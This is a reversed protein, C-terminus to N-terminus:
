AAKRRMQLQMTYNFETISMLARLAALQKDTLERCGDEHEITIATLNKKAVEIEVRVSGLDAPTMPGLFLMEINEIAAHFYSLHVMSKSLPSM